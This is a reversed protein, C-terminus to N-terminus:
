TKHLDVKFKFHRTQTCYFDILAFGLPGAAWAYQENVILFM